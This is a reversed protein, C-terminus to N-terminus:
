VVPLTQDFFTFFPTHAPSVYPPFANRWSVRIHTLCWFQPLFHSRDPPFALYLVFASRIVDVLGYDCPIWLVLLLVELLLLM